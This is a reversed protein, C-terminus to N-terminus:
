SLDAEDPSEEADITDDKGFWMERALEPGLTLEADRMVNRVARGIQDSNGELKQRTRVLKNLANAARIMITLHKEDNVSAARKLVLRILAIEEDIGEVDGASSLDENEETSLIRSYFGQKCANRNGPQGGRKRKPTRKEAM